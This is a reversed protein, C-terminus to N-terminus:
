AHADQSERRLYQKIVFELYKQPLSLLEVGMGDYAPGSRDIRIVKVPVQLFSNKEPIFVKYANDFPYSIRTKIYMGRESCNTLVASRKERDSYLIVERTVPVRKGTRREM